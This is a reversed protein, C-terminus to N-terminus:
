GRGELEFGTAGTCELLADVRGAGGGERDVLSMEGARRAAVQEVDDVLPVPQGDRAPEGLELGLPGAPM